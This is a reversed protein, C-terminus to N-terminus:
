NEYLSREIKEDLASSKLAKDIDNEYHSDSRIISNLRNFSDMFFDDMIGPTNEIISLEHKLQSQDIKWSDNGRWLFVAIRSIHYSGKKALNRKIDDSDTTLRAEKLWKNALRVILSAIIYPEVSYGTFIRDYYESWVKYKRGRGDAPKRLVLALFAQGVIDNSLIRSQNIANNDIFQKPKREYYYHYIRFASELDVQVQDNARLNRNSIRNQNNTTLVMRDVLSSDKTEYIRLIVRVDRSLKGIKDAMAITTATQCGNVIQMNKIKILPNDPDTVADFQDCVVTIGNNLFWFLYSEDNNTCTEQIDNNVAGRTGLFRRINLDFIAGDNDDNVLRSIESAPVSCVLGKLDEAYYKILSPNNADYKMRIDADIRRQRKEQSHIIQVLEDAGYPECSFEEFTGNDFESLISRLEQNFEDSLDVTHGMTVFRVIVRINSPGISSQISRFETIKDKFAINSLSRIESRPKNFLWQLGNKMQILSNSSFGHSNKAQLIFVTARNSEEEITIIDIQKDQGGDTLDGDDFAFFSTGTILQHVLRLFSQGEDTNISKQIQEVRDQLIQQRLTMEEGKFILIYCTILNNRSIM